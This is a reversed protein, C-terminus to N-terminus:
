PRGKSTLYRKNLPTSFLAPYVKSNPLRWWLRMLRRYNRADQNTVWDPDPDVHKYHQRLSREITELRNLIRVAIPQRRRERVVDQWTQRYNAQRGM